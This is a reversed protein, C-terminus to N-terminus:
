WQNSIATNNGPMGSQVHDAVGRTQGVQRIVSLNNQGTQSVNALHGIGSLNSDQYIYSASLDAENQTVFAKNDDGAQRVFSWTQDTNNTQNVTVENDNGRQHIISDSRETNNIQDVTATNGSGAQLIYSDNLYGTQTVTATNGDHPNSGSQTIISENKGGNNGNRQTVTATDNNGSQEISSYQPGDYQNVTGTGGVGSQQIRSYQSNSNPSKNFGDMGKRLNEQTNFASNSPGHTTPDNNFDRPDASASFSVALAIAAALATLQMKM